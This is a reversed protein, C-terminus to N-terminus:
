NFLRIFPLKKIIDGIPRLKGSDCMMKLVEEKSSGCIDLANKKFKEFKMVKEIEDKILDSTKQLNKSEDEIFTFFAKTVIKSLILRKTYYNYDTSKDNLLIWIRDAILYTSKLAFSAPALGNKKDILNGLDFYFGKVSRIAARKQEQIAFFNFLCFHIKERVKKLHFDSSSAVLEELEDLTQSLFFEIIGTVDGFVLEIKAEDILCDDAIKLFIGNDIESEQCIRLFSALIRKKEEIQSM